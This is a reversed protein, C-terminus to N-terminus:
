RSTTQKTQRDQAPVEVPLSEIVSEGGWFKSTQRLRAICSYSTRTPEGVNVYGSWAGWAGQRHFGAETTWERGDEARVILEISEIQRFPGVSYFGSVHVQGLSLEHAFSDKIWISSPNARGHWVVWLIALLIFCAIGLSTGIM